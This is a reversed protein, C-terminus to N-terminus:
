FALLPKIEKMKTLSNALYVGDAREPKNILRGAKADGNEVKLKV